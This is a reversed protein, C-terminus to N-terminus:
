EIYEKVIARCPTGEVGRIKLPYAELFVEKRTISSLNVLCELILIGQSCLYVNVDYNETVMSELGISDIGIMRISQEECLYRAAELSIGPRCRNDIKGSHILEEMYGTRLILIKDKLDVDKLLGRMEELTVDSGRKKMELIYAVGEFRNLPHDNIRNGDGRFYHAGQVHTGSQSCLEIDYVFERNDGAVRNFPGSVTVPPNGPFDFADMWMSVDIIRYDSM